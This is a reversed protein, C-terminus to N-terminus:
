RSLFFKAVTPVNFGYCMEGSLFRHTVRCSSTRYRVRIEASRSRSNSPDASASLIGNATSFPNVNIKLLVNM